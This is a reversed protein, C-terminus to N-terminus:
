GRNGGVASQFALFAAGEEEDSMVPVPPATQGPPVALNAEWLGFTEPDM